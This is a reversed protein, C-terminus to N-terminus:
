SVIVFVFFVFGNAPKTVEKVGDASATVTIEVPGIGLIPSVSVIETGEAELTAITGSAKKNIFGEKLM